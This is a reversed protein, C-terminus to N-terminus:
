RIQVAPYRALRIATPSHKGLMSCTFSKALFSDPFPSIQCPPGFSRLVSSHVSEFDYLERQHKAKPNEPEGTRWTM